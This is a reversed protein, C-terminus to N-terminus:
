MNEKKALLINILQDLTLLVHVHKLFVELIYKLNMLVTLFPHWVNPANQRTITM